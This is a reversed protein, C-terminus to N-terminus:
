SESSENWGSTKHIPVGHDDVPTILWDDKTRLSFEELVIKCAAKLNRNHEIATELVWKRNQSQEGSKQSEVAQAILSDADYALKKITGAINENIQEAKM